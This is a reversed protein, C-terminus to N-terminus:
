KTYDLLDVGRWYIRGCAFCRIVCDDTRDLFHQHAGNCQWCSRLAVNGAKMAERAEERLSEISAEDRPEFHVVGDETRWFRMGNAGEEDGDDNLM